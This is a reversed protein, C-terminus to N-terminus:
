NEISQMKWNFKRQLISLFNIFHSIEAIHKRKDQMYQENIWQINTIDKLEKSLQTNM